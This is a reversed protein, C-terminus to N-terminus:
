TQPDVLINETSLLSTQYKFDTFANELSGHTDAIIIVSWDLQPDNM